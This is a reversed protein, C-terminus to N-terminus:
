CLCDQDTRHAQEATAIQFMKSTLPPLTAGPSPEANYSTLNSSRLKLGKGPWTRLPFTFLQLLHTGAEDRCCCQVVNIHWAPRDAALICELGEATCAQQGHLVAAPPINHKTM